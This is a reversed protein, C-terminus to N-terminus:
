TSSWGIFLKTEIKWHNWYLIFHLNKNIIVVSSFHHFYHVHSYPSHTRIGSMALHERYLMIHHLKDTVQSLDTIKEPAEVLLVSRWSIVSINNFTAKFVMIRIMVNISYMSFSVNQLCPFFKMIEPWFILFILIYPFDAYKLWFMNFCKM